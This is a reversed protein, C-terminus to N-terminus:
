GRIKAILLLGFFFSWVELYHDVLLIKGTNQWLDKGTQGGTIEPKFAVM